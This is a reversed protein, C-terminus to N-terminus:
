GSTRSRWGEGGGEREDNAARDRAVLLVLPDENASDIRRAVLALRRRGLDSFELDLEVGEGRPGRSLAREILSGIRPDGWGDGLEAIPRDLAGDGDVRFAGRFAANAQRVHLSADLVVVWESVTDDVAQSREQEEHLATELKKQESIDVLTLVAGDIRNELDKYPRIGLALWRGQADRVEGQYPTVGDIVSRIRDELDPCDINPKIHHIPRGIDSQILNLAKEALPTFRRIRLDSGVIVIAAHVSALLNTLDSNVRILEENRGHLEENVTNIEENTSQLEERATNLEENTSQLEENSSLIEENASQLEENAAELDQIMSQMHQRTSDLEQELARLRTDQKSRRERRGRPRAREHEAAKKTGATVDEFLVLFYPSERGDSLPVVSVDVTRASGDHTVRMGERRVSRSDRRATHVAMRLAHVLGQRAMKILNLSALGPALELYPGTQGLTEVIKLETDVIVGPPAYSSLIHQRAERLLENEPLPVLALRRREGPTASTTDVSGFDLNTPTEVSKKTYLKHGKDAVAFLDAQPGVTEAQGLLLFGGPKLAYHFINMLKRQLAPELYILLNRCMILDLRSFPPDRTVDQRAFVCLERVIQAVRYSGDVRNFFRRLRDPSLDASINEPYAGVRAHEIATESVDTAFLQLPTTPSEPGLLELLTIAVSYAEEGTACGPVWIRVPGENRRRLIEPLVRQALLEFSAPERFFSTVQILLDEHLERVEAADRALLEIYAELDHLRHLLMRRQLRRQVTAKKYQSFDVNTGKRLLAFVRALQESPAGSDDALEPPVLPGEPRHRAIEALEEAIREPRLVLDVVGTAIAARPMGDHEASDPDQAITIGGAAHIERLGAAGDSGTGSLVIGVAGPGAGRALSRFFSDIPHPSGVGPHPTLRLRGEDLELFRDPPIVYVRNMVLRTEANVQAVPMRTADQLIQSLLSKHHPSLHQVVVIPLGPQDPLHKLLQTLADLGGASAGIGVIPVWAARNGKRARRKGRSARGEGSQSANGPTGEKPPASREVPRTSEPSSKTRSRQKPRQRAAM